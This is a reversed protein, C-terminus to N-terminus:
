FTMRSVVKLFEDKEMIGWLRYYVGDIIVSMFSCISGDSLTEQNVILEQNIWKNKISIGDKKDSDFKYSVTKEYKSQVFYIYQEGYEFRMSAFGDNIELDRFSMEYPKYSLKLPKIGLNKNILTYAEEEKDIMSMNSDNDYVVAEGIISGPRERYFYSKKGVAVFCGGGVLICATLGIAAARKWRFRFKIVKNHEEKQSNSSEEQIRSWILEFENSPPASIPLPARDKSAAEFEKLLMEETFGLMEQLKNEISNDQELKRGHREM